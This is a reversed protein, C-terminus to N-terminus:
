TWRRDPALPRWDRLGPSPYVFRGTEPRGGSWRTFAPGQVPWSPAAHSRVILVESPFTGHPTRALHPYATTFPLSSPPLGPSLLNTSLFLGGPRLLQQVVLWLEFAGARAAEERWTPWRPGLAQKVSRPADQVTAVIGSSVEFLANAFGLDFTKAPLRDARISPRTQYRDDFTHHGPHDLLDLLHGGLELVPARDISPLLAPIWAEPPHTRLIDLTREPERVGALGLFVPLACHQGWGREVPLGRRARLADLVWPARLDLPGTHDAIQELIHM